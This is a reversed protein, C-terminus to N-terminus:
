KASRTNERNPHRLLVAYIAPLAMRSLCFISSRTSDALNDFLKREFLRNARPSRDRHAKLLAVHWECRHKM